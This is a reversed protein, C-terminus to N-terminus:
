DIWGKLNLTREELSGQLILLVHRVEHVVYKLAEAHLSCFLFHFTLKRFVIYSICLLWFRTLSIAIM